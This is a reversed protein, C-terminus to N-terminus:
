NQAAFALQEYWFLVIPTGQLIDECGEINTALIGLIFFNYLFSALLWTYDTLLLPFIPLFLASPSISAPVLMVSYGAQQLHLIHLFQVIVM